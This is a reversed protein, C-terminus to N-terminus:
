DSDVVQHFNGNSFLYTAGCCECCRVSIGDRPYVDEEETDYNHFHTGKRAVSLSESVYLNTILLPDQGKRSSLCVAIAQSRGVGPKEVLLAADQEGDDDFDGLAVSYTAKARDFDPFAKRTITECEETLGTAQATCPILILLLTALARAM